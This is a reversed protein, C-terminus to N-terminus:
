EIWGMKKSKKYAASNMKNFERRNKYKKSEERCNEETWKNM